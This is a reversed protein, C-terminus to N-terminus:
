FQFYIFANTPGYASLIFFVFVGTLAAKGYGTVAPVWAREECLRWLHMLFPPILFWSGFRIVDNPAAFDLAAINKVIQWAGALHDSRFFIWAVLVVLQVVIWWTLRALVPTTARQLGLAREVALALGHIAGWVVFTWAAGHWLGGLLMVTMLNVYTRVRSIRNGGLAVYLYDRLWSSLTIHWREWFNKFSGAIYPANFNVPLRFGLMLALGRAINSYGAFDCFIQAGFMTALWLLAFSNAGPEYGASWHENVFVAINDACVMKLFYGGTLLFLGENIVSLHVRRVRPLQPLFEVARVIPGAVLQPFFSIYLLFAWFSRLPELHRRYVDITYSMSQFTYFSIGMPLMVDLTPMAPELGAVRALDGFADLVFNAYKFFGLLGLNAGLSVALIWRRTSRPAGQRKGLELAAVYDIVASLLLIGLFQPVHWGYFVLSAVLLVALYSREVKRRGITLRSAFAVLFLAIFSYSVFNV